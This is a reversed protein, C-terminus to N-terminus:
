VDAKNVNLTGDSQQEKYMAVLLLSHLVVFYMITFKTTFFTESLSYVLYQMLTILGAKAYISHRHRFYTYGLGSIMSLFIAIGLLGRSALIEFFENHAHDYHFSIEGNKQERQNQKFFGDLGSGTVPNESFAKLSVSWMLIRQNTSNDFTLGQKFSTFTTLVRGQLGQSSGFAAIIVIILMFIHKKQLLGFM